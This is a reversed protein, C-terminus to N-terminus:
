TFSINWFWNLNFVRQFLVFINWIDIYRIELYTSYTGDVMFLVIWKKFMHAHVIQVIHKENNTKEYKNIKEYWIEKENAHIAHTKNWDHENERQNLCYCLTKELLERQASNEIPDVISLM